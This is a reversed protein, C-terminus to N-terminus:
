DGAQPRNALEYGWCLDIGVVNGWSTSEECVRRASGRWAFNGYNISGWCPWSKLFPRNIKPPEGTGASPDNGV